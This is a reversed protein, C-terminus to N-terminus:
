QTDSLNSFIAKLRKEVAAEGYNDVILNRGQLSLKEWLNTDQYVQCVAQAFDDPNDTIMATEGHTLGMGEAGIMTTVVPLGVALAQGIKGKMGAGYRLYSVFLRRKAFEPEVTEVWGVIKIKESALNRMKEPMQSGILYLCVEPLQQHITPLIKKILYYVADENPKHAYNGIFVIGESGDFSIKTSPPLHHINPITSFEIEPLSKQLHLGDAETIVLVRDALLCNALEKRKTWAAQEFLQQNKEIEAQRMERIYHIDVTDYLIKTTPCALRLFPIYRYAIDVRCVIAFTYIRQQLITSLNTQEPFIEVGINKLAQSYKPNNEQNDAFFTVKYNLKVLLKLLTFLRLSGSDEDYTPLKAEIVLISPTDITQLFVPSQTDFYQIKSSEDHCWVGIINQADADPSDIEIQYAKNESDPIPEFDVICDGNDKLVLASSFVTRVINENERIIVRLYCFNVRQYTAVTFSLRCFNNKPSNLKFVLAKGKFLPFIHDQAKAVQGVLEVINGAYISLNPYQHSLPRPPPIEYTFGNSNRHTTLWNKLREHTIQLQNAWYTPLSTHQTLLIKNLETHTLGQVLQKQYIILTQQLKEIYTQLQQQRKQLIQVASAQEALQKELQQQTQNSIQLLGRREQSVQWYHTLFELQKNNSLAQVHKKLFGQYAQQWQQHTAAQTVQEKGWITYETTIQPIHYFNTKQSLRFILDWDEFIDFNPDFGNIDLFLVQNILLNILPIYNEYGLRAADYADNFEGTIATTSQSWQILRCGSYIVQTNTNDIAQALEFLHESLFIDDDDLFAIWESNAADVGQNATNARGQAQTNTLLQYNLQSFETLISEVATGGDNVIIVEDPLRQQNVLSTLCRQLLAPRSQTRVIVAIRATPM